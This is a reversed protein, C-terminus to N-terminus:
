LVPSSCRSGTNGEDTCPAGAPSTAKRRHPTPLGVDGRPTTLGGAGVGVGTAVVALLLMPVVDGLVVVEVLM